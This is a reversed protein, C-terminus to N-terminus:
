IEGIYWKEIIIWSSIIIYKLHKSYIIYHENTVEIICAVLYKVITIKNKIMSM